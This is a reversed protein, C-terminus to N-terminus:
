RTEAFTATKQIHSRIADFVAVLTQRADLNLTEEDAFLSHAKDWLDNASALRRRAEPGALAADRAEAALWDVIMEKAFGTEAGGAEAILQDAIALHAASRGAMPARLWDRLTTLAGEDNLALAEFGRRPRGEALTVAHDLTEGADPRQEALVHRVEEDALPRLAISLCRSKITPLLLGPRHSVLLFMTETPPEELTKLMANAASPNCDDIADIIAIRHGSRGRTRHLRDRLERVEDVRIVTYFGKGDKPTRRLVTLNPHAGAVVQEDVRHAEEDGTRVLIQRALAFALTAKGIGQPGHLLIAGPLRGADLVSALHGLAAEHGIVPSLNQEPAVVDELQDAEIM